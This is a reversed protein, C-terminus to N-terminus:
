PNSRALGAYACHTPSEPTPVPKTTEISLVIQSKLLGKPPHFYRFDESKPLTSILYTQRDQCHLVPPTLPTPASTQDFQTCSEPWSQHNRSLSALSVDAAHFSRVRTLVRQRSSEDGGVLLRVKSAILRMKMGLAKGVEGDSEVDRDLEM